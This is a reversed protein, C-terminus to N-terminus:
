YKGEEDRHDLKQLLETLRAPVAQNVLDDYMARLQHGIADQVNRGLTATGHGHGNSIHMKSGPKAPKNGKM